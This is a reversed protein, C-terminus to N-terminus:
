ATGRRFPATLGGPGAIALMCVDAEIPWQGLDGPPELAEGRRSALSPSPGIHDEGMPGPHGIGAGPM